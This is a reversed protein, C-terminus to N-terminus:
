GNGAGVHYPLDHEHQHEKTERVAVPVHRYGQENHDRRQDHGIGSPSLSLTMTDLGGPQGRHEPDNGPLPASV